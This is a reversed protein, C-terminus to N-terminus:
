SKVNPSNSSLAAKIKLVSSIVAKGVEKRYIRSLLTTVGPNPYCKDEEVSEVTNTEFSLGRLLGMHYM